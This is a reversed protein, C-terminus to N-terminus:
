GTPSGCSGTIGSRLLRPASPPSRKWSRPNVEQRSDGGMDGGKDKKKSKKKSSKKMDGGASDPAPQDVAHAITWTTPMLVAMFLFCARILNM